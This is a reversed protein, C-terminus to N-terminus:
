AGLGADPSDLPLLGPTVQTLHSSPRSGPRAKRTSSSCGVTTVASFLAPIVGCPCRLAASRCHADAPRHSGTRCTPATHPM